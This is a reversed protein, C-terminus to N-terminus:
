AKTRFYELLYMYDLNLTPKKILIKVDNYVYINQYNLALITM